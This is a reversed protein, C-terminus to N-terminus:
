ALIVADPLSYWAITKSGGDRDILYCWRALTLTNRVDMHLFQQQDCRGIGRVALITHAIAELQGATMGDVRVDAALGLMHESKGVGGVHANWQACRYASNIHVPKGVKARFEELADVLRQTAGNVHCGTGSPGCTAGRCALESESFHPGTAGM